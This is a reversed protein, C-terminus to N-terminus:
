KKGQKKILAVEKLGVLNIGQYKLPEKAALIFPPIDQVVRFGGGVFVHVGIKCFQHVLVGGGLSTNNDISVHGGLTAMNALVINDGLICDHGVPVNIFM